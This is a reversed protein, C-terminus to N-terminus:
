RRIFRPSRFAKPTDEEDTTAVVDVGHHARADESLDHWLVAIVVRFIREDGREAKVTRKM